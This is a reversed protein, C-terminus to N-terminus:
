FRGWEIGLLFDAQNLNTQFTGSAARFNPEFWRTYRFEPSFRPPGSRLAVGGGIVFGSTWVHVLEPPVVTTEITHSPFVANVIHSTGPSPRLGIEGFPAIVNEGFHKKVLFPFQWSNARTASRTFTDVGMITSNYDLRTGLADV